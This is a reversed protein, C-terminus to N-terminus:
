VFRIFINISDMYIGISNNIPDYEKSTKASYIIRQTDYLVFASFVALGGYLWINTLAPSGPYLISLLSVGMLGGM